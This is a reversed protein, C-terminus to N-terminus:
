SMTVPLAGEGELAKEYKNTYFVSADEGEM